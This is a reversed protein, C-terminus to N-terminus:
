VGAVVVSDDRNTDLGHIGVFVIVAENELCRAAHSLVFMVNVALFAQDSLVLCSGVATGVETLLRATCARYTELITRSCLM